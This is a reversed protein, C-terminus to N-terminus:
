TQRSRLRPTKIRENHHAQPAAGTPKNLTAAGNPPAVGAAGNPPAVGKSSM